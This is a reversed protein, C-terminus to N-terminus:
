HGWELTLVKKGTTLEFEEALDDRMAILAEPSHKELSKLAVPHPQANMLILIGNIEEIIHSVIMVIFKSNM